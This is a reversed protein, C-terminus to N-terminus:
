IHKQCIVNREKYCRDNNWKGKREEDVYMYVCDELGPNSPEGVNWASFTDAVATGDVWYFVNNNGHMGLWTQGKDKILNLIFDNEEASKIVPLDAGLDQCQQRATSPEQVDPSTIIYYCLSGHAVWDQPCGSVPFYKLRLYHM